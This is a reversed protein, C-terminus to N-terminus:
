AEAMDRLYGLLTEASAKLAGSAEQTNRRDILAAYSAGTRKDELGLLYYIHNRGDAQDATGTKAYVTGYEESLGYYLANSHLYAKLSRATAASVAESLRQPKTPKRTAGNDAISQILYPKMMEGHNLVTGMLMVVQMPSVITKGQGFAASALLPRSRMDIHSSLAAFDLSIKEGFLFAQATNRLRNADMNMAASAFYVNMSRQFAFEMNVNKGYSQNGFNRINIDGVRLAGTEDDYLYDEMGGEIMAAATVIKFTSGPPDQSMTARNLFFADYQSYEEYKADIENVNYPCQASSRSACALVEGTEPRLVIVSGEHEGLVNRYCFEQLDNDTTLTVQAGVRDAGGYFLERYLRSRLGSTGYVASNYGILYSYAEGFIVQAPKGPASPETIPDGNRDMFQGEVSSMRESFNRLSQARADVAADAGPILGTSLVLRYIILFVLLVSLASILAARVSYFTVPHLNGERKM